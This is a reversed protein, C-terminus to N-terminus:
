GSFSKCAKKGVPKKVMTSGHDTTIFIRVNPYKSLAKFIKLLYSNQFWTLTLSRMGSENPALEKVIQIESRAHVILDLFNFVFFNLKNNLYSTINEYLKNGENMRIVKEYSFYQTATPLISVYLEEKNIIYDKAIIHEMVKWQDYRMCDILFFFTIEDERINPIFKKELLNHSM